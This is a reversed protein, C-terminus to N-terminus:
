KIPSKGDFVRLDEMLPAVIRDFVAQQFDEDNLDKVRNEFNCEICSRVVDRYRLGSEEFVKQLVRRATTSETILPDPGQDDEEQLSSLTQGLSLEILSVGLAFLPQYPIISAIWTAEAKQVHGSEQPEVIPHSLYPRSYDISSNGTRLFEFHSSRFTQQLWNTGHLQLVSSAIVVGLYLRNRRSMFTERQGKQCNELAEQLTIKSIAFGHSPTDHFIAQCYVNYRSENDLLFGICKNVKESKALADCLDLIHVSNAMSDHSPAVQGQTSIQLKEQLNDAFRVEKAKGSKISPRDGIKTTRDEIQPKQLLRSQELPEIVIQKQSWRSVAASTAENWLLVQYRYRQEEQAGHGEEVHWPRPELGLHAVHRNRCTCIWSKKVCVNYISRAESRIRKFDLDSMSRHRKQRKAALHRGADVFLLLDTNASKIKQILEEYEKKLFTVKLRQYEREVFSSDSSSAKFSLTSM